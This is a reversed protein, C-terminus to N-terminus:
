RATPLAVDPRGLFKAVTDFLHDASFPKIIYADCGGELMTEEDKMSAFATVAIIPTRKLDDDAKIAKTVEIGSVGPLQIDMIILDPRHDRALQHANEGRVAHVTDFGKADLLYKVLSAHVPNDEVVLVTKPM